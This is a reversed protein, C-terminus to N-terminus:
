KCMMKSTGMDVISPTQIWSMSPIEPNENQSRDGLTTEACGGTIKVQYSAIFHSVFHIFINVLKEVKLLLHFILFSFCVYQKDANLDSVRTKGMFKFTLVVKYLM